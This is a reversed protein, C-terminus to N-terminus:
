LNISKIGRKKKYRITVKVISTDNKRETTFEKLIISKGEVKKLLQEFTTLEGNCMAMLNANTDHFIQLFKKKDGAGRVIRLFMITLEEDSPLEEKKINQKEIDKFITYVKPDDPIYDDTKTPASKEVNTIKNKKSPKVRVYVRKKAIFQENGDVVLSITKYGPKSFTYKVSKRRSYIRNSSSVRWEWSQVGRTSCTFIAPYGVYMQKPGAIRPVIVEAVEKKIQDVHVLEQFEYYNDVTLTVTYDGHEEYTHIPSKDTVIATSDGFNWQYSHDGATNNRFKLLQNEIHKDGLIDFSVEPPTEYSLFRFGVLALLPIILFIFFNSIMSDIRFQRSEVTNKEM